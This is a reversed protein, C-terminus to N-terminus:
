SGVSRYRRVAASWIAAAALTAVVAVVPSAFRLADPLGLDDPKDLVYLAPFYAVFGVPLVFVVFTRLWRAFVNLPYQSLFNGGYTFANVFEIADVIWFAITVLAVWVAGYIVAGALIALPIMLVRGVTWDVDLYALAVALVAFGQIAKGVRRLSFDTAVVQVLSPLPRTLVQDFSGDRIMTSLLDLHGIVLDTLAFAICAIGYLLGVEAVTWGELQPVQEFIILIAVFDLFVMLTTAVVELALSVRYQLQARIRAGVLLRYARWVALPRLEGV